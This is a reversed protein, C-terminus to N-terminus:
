YGDLEGPVRGHHQLSELKYRENSESYGNDDLSGWGNLIHTHEGIGRNGYDAVSGTDIAPGYPTMGLQWHNM